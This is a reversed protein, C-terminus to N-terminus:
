QHRNEGHADDNRAEGEGLVRRAGSARRAPTIRAPGPLILRRYRIPLPSASAKVGGTVPTACEAPEEEDGEIEIVKDRATGGPGMGRIGLRRGAPRGGDGKWRGGTAVRM